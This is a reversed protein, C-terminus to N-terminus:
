SSTEAMVTSAQRGRGELLSDEEGPGVSVQIGSDRTQHNSISSEYSSDRPEYEGSSVCNRTHCSSGMDNDHKGSRELEKEEGNQTNIAM